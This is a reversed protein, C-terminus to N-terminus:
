IWTWISRSISRPGREDTWRRGGAQLRAAVRLRHAATHHGVTRERVSHAHHGHRKWGAAATSAEDLQTPAPGTLAAAAIASIILQAM